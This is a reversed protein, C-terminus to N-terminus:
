SGLVIYSLQVSIVSLLRPPQPELQQCTSRDSLCRKYLHPGQGKASCLGKRDGTGRRRRGQQQPLM